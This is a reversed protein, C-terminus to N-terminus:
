LILEELKIQKCEDFLIYKKISIINIFDEIFIIRYTKKKSFYIIFFCIGQKSNHVKVMNNAQRVDKPLVKWRDDVESMKADFCFTGKPTFVTYDFKEGQGKIYIGANTRAPHNKFGLCDNRKNIVEIIKKDIMNEFDNKM